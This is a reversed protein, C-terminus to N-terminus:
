AAQEAYKIISPIPYANAIDGATTATDGAMLQTDPHLGRVARSRFVLGYSRLLHERAERRNRAVVLMRDAVVFCKGEGEDEVKEQWIDFRLTNYYGYAESRSAEDHLPDAGRKRICLKVLALMACELWNYIRREDSDEPIRELLDQVLLVCAYATAWVCVHSGEDGFTQRMIGLLEGQRRLAYQEPIRFRPGMDSFAETQWRIIRECIRDGDRDPDQELLAGALKGCLFVVFARLRWEYALTPHVRRIAQCTLSHCTQDARKTHGCVPCVVRAGTKTRRKPM